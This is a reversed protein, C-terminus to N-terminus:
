VKRVEYWTNTPELSDLFVFHHLYGSIEMGDGGYGGMCVWVFGVNGKSPEHM